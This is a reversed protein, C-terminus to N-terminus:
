ARGRRDPQGGPVHRRQGAAEGCQTVTPIMGVLGPPLTTKVQSLYQQGDAADLNFTFSTNAGANGPAQNATSQTPSFPLPSACAGGTGNSDVTFPM